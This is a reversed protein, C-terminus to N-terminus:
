VDWDWFRWWDNKDSISVAINPNRTQLLRVFEKENSPSILVDKGKAKIYLRKISSAPSSLPNYSREVSTIDELKIKGYSIPGIKIILFQESIEYRMGFLLLVMFFTVLAMVGYALYLDNPQASPEQLFMIPLLSCAVILLMLVSVRSRFQHM